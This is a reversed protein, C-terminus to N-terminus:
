FAEELTPPPRPLTVKPSALRELPRCFPLGKRLALHASGSGWRGCGPKGADGIAEAWSVAARRAGLIM